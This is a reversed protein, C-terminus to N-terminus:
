CPDAGNELLAMAVWEQDTKGHNECKLFIQLISRDQSSRQPNPNAGKACLLRVLDPKLCLAALDLASLVTKNWSNLEVSDPDKMEKILRVAIDDNGMALAVSFANQQNGQTCYVLEDTPVYRSFTADAALDVRAGKRLLLEVIDAHGRIAAAILPTTEGYLDTINHGMEIKANVDAGLALFKEVGAINGKQICYILAKSERTYLVQGFLFNSYKSTKSLASLSADDLPEVIDLVLELPLSALTGAM